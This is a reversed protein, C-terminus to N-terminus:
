ENFDGEERNYNQLFQVNLEPKFYHKRKIWVFGDGKSIIAVDIPGGVTEAQNIMMKRKLSTLNVLSEAMSALEDKPLVSVADILPTINKNRKYIALKDKCENLSKKSLNEIESEITKTQRKSLKLRDSITKLYRKPYINLYSQELFGIFYKELNPDIGTVFTTMVDSQAFPIVVANSDDTIERFRVQKYRLKNFFFGDTKYEILKPFIEKEGFGAFVIGSSSDSFYDKKLRNVLISEFINKFEDAINDGFIQKSIVSSLAKILSNKRIRFSELNTTSDFYDKIEVLKDNVIKIEESLDITKGSEKLDLIHSDIENQIVKFLDYTLEGLYKEQLKQSFLEKKLFNNFEVSYERLTEFKTKSIQKRFTKIITEWPIGLINARGYIMIAIPHYKSLTFLKNVSNYVKDGITVASDAALAIGMKNLVAAEATM